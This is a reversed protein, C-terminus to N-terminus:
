KEEKENKVCIAGDINDIWDLFLKLLHFDDEDYGPIYTIIADRVIDIDVIVEAPM